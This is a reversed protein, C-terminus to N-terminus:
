LSRAIALVKHWGGAGTLSVAYVMTDHRWVILTKRVSSFSYGKDIGVVIPRSGSPQPDLRGDPIEDIRLVDRRVAYFLSVWQIDGDIAVQRLRASPPLYRPVNLKYTLHAQARAVTKFIAAYGRRLAPGTPNLGKVYVRANASTRSQPAVTSQAAYFAVGSLLALLVLSAVLWPM